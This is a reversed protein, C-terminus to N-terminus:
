GLLVPIMMKIHADIRDLVVSPVIEREPLTWWRENIRHVTEAVAKLVAPEPLRARNAFAKWRAPTLTKFTREGGLSLALRDGPTHPVTSLM